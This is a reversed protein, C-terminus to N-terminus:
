RLCLIETKSILLYKMQKSGEDGGIRYEVPFRIMCLKAQEGEIGLDQFRKFFNMM